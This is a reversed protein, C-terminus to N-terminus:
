GDAGEEAVLARLVEPMVERALAWQEGTLNLRGLGIQFARFAQAGQAESLRALRTDIDLRACMAAFAAARDMAREFLIVV